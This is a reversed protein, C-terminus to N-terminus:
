GTTRARVPGDLWRGVLARGLPVALRERRRAEELLHEPDVGARQFLGDVLGADSWAQLQAATVEPHFQVAHASRLRWASAGDSGTLLVEAGPPLAIVEDEHLFLMSAGDPWGAIVADSRGAPTRELALYGIEPTPRRTVEGGLAAGLLQAGLCVGLVPVGADVARELWRLESPMWPHREPDVASMTGGLVLVGAVEDLDDPLAHGATMQLVRWPAISTRADLVEAFASVGAGPTHELVVVASVSV